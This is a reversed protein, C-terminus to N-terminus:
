WSSKIHSNMEDHSQRSEKAPLSVENPGVAPSRLFGEPKHGQKDSSALGLIIYVVHQM